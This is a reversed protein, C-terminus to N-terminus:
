DSKCPYVCLRPKDPLHSELESCVAGTPCDAHTDCPGPESGVAACWIGDLDHVLMFVCGDSWLQCYNEPWLCAGNIFPQSLPCGCAGTDLCIQVDSCCVETGGNNCDMVPEGCVHEPTCPVSTCAEAMCDASTRCQGAAFCGYDPRCSWGEPCCEGSIACFDRGTPCCLEEGYCVGYCCANDCCEAQGVPCCDPGCSTTNNPCVCATGDWTQQGPCRVARPPPTPRRAAETDSWAMGAVAAGGLGLLGKLIQRRNAGSALSRVLADFSRNDM